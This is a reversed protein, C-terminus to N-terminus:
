TIRKENIMRCFLASQFTGARNRVGNGNRCFSSMAIRSINGSEVIWYKLRLVLAIVWMPIPLWFEIRAVLSNNLTENELKATLLEVAARNHPVGQELAYVVFSLVNQGRFIM